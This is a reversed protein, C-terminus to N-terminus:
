DCPTNDISGEGKIRTPCGGGSGISRERPTFLTTNESQNVGTGRRGRGHGHRHGYYSGSQSGSIVGSYDYGVTPFRATRQINIVAVTRYSEVFDDVIVNINAALKSHTGAGVRWYKFQFGLLKKQVLLTALLIGIGRRYGLAVGDSERRRHLILAAARGGGGHQDPAPRAVAGDVVGIPRDAGVVDGCQCGVARRRM